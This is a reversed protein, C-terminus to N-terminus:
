LHTSVMIMCIPNISLFCAQHLFTSAICEEMQGAAKAVLESPDAGRQLMEDAQEAFIEKDEETVMKPLGRYWYEILGSTKDTM